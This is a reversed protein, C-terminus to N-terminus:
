YFSAKKESSNFDDVDKNANISVGKELENEYM